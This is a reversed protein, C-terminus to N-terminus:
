GQRQLTVKIAAKSVRFGTPLRTVTMRWVGAKPRQVRVSRFTRAKVVKVAKGAPRLDTRAGPRRLRLGFRGNGWTVTFTAVQEGRPIRVKYTKSQGVRFNRTTKLVNRVSDPKGLIARPASGPPDLFVQAPGSRLGRSDEAFYTFTDAATSGATGTYVVQGTTENVQVTGSAPPTAVFFRLGAGAPAADAGNAPSTASIRRGPVQPEKVTGSLQLTARGATTLVAAKRDVVVGPIELPRLELDNGTAGGQDIEGSPAVRARFIGPGPVAGTIDFYASNVSSLEIVDQWGTSIGSSFGTASPDLPSCNALAAINGGVVAGRPGFEAPSPPPAGPGNFVANDERCVPQLASEIAPGAAPSLTYRALGDIGWAYEAASLRTGVLRITPGLAISTGGDIAQVAGAVRAEPPGSAAGPTVKFKGGVNAIQTPFHFRASYAGGEVSSDVYWRETRLPGESTVFPFLDPPAASATGAAGLAILVAAGVSRRLGRGTTHRGTGEHTMPSM